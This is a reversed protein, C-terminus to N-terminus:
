VLKIHSPIALLMLFKRRKELDSGEDENDMADNRIFRDMIRKLRTKLAVSLLVHLVVYTLVLLVLVFVYVSTSFKRSSGAAYAGMLSFLDLTMATQLIHRKVAGVAILKSQLLTIIM